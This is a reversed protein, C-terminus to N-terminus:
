LAVAFLEESVADDGGNESAAASVVPSPSVSAEQDSGPCTSREEEDAEVWKKNFFIATRTRASRGAPEDKRLKGELMEFEEEFSPRCPGQESGSEQPLSPDKKGPGSIVRTTVVVPLPLPVARLVFRADPSPRPGTDARGCLAANRLREEAREAVFGCLTKERYVREAEAIKAKDLDFTRADAIIQPFEALRIKEPEELAERATEKALERAQSQAKLAATTEIEQIHLRDVEAEVKRSAEEAIKRAAEEARQTAEKEREAAVQDALRVADERCKRAAAGWRAQEWQAKLSPIGSFLSSPAIIISPASTTQSATALVSM